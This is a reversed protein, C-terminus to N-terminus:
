ATSIAAHMTLATARRGDGDVPPVTPQCLRCGDAHRIPAVPLTATIERSRLWDHWRRFGLLRSLAAMSDSSASGSRVPSVAAHVTVFRRAPTPYPSPKGAPRMERGDDDTVIPDCCVYRREFVRLQAPTPGSGTTGDRVESTIVIAGDPDFSGAANFQCTRGTCATTFAAAPQGPRPVFWAPNSGYALMRLGGGDAEVAYTYDPTRGCPSGDANCAGVPAWTGAVVFALTRGDPSWTPKIAAIGPAVGVISGDARMVKLDGPTLFAIDRRVSLFDGHANLGAARTCSTTGDPQSLYHHATSLGQATPALSRAALGRVYSLRRSEIM